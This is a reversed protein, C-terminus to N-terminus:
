CWAFLMKNRYRGQKALIDAEFNLVRDVKKFEIKSFLLFNKLEEKLKHDLSYKIKQVEKILESSDSYLVCHSRNYQSSALQRIVFLMAELECQFANNAKVPGSFILVLNGESDKVYGGIGSQSGANSTTKWAGDIFGILVANSVMLQRKRSLSTSLILGIPNSRWITSNDILSVAQCWRQSRIVILYILDERTIRVGQFVVQNRCLWLTWLTTSWTIEWAVRVTPCKSVMTILQMNLLSSARWIFKKGEVTFVYFNTFLM